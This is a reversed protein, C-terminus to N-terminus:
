QKFTTFLDKINVKLFAILQEKIKVKPHGWNSWVEFVPLYGFLCVFLCVFLCHSMDEVELELLM